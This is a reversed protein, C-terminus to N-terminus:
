SEITNFILDWEIELIVSSTKTKSPFVRRAFWKFVEPDPSGQTKAMLVAETYTTTGSFGNGKTTPVTCFLRLTSTNPYSYGVTLIESANTPFVTSVNDLTGNAYPSVDTAAPTTTGKGLQFYRITSALAGSLSNLHVGPEADSPLTFDGVLAQKLIEIGSNLVLNEGRDIDLVEGTNTDITKITLIGKITIGSM